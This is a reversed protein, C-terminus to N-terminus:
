FVARLMFQLQRPTGSGIPTTNVAATIVGFQAPVTVDGAPQGLQARNLLNFAEARFEIAARESIGVRKMLGLDVPTLAPGRALNRGANGWTGPAPTRFAAPNIWQAPTSGGPPTLSVGPVLDPRQSATYGGPVVSAARTITVNVPLATRATAIGTLSWGGLVGRLMGPRSAWRKGAGFPLEYVSNMSFTRRADFPSSARECARCFVNEPTSADTEGGGLSGDNISHSWTFNAGFVWGARFPRQASVSLAHYTSNSDNTRYEVIGYSPFPVSVTVPDAV